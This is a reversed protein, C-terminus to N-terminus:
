VDKAEEEQVAEALWEDRCQDCEFKEGLMADILLCWSRQRHGCSLLMEDWDLDVPVRETIQRLFGNPRMERYRRLIEPSYKPESM